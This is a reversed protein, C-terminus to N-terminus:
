YNYTRASNPASPPPLANTTTATATVDAPADPNALTEVGNWSLRTFAQCQALFYFSYGLNAVYIETYKAPFLTLQALRYVIAFCELVKDLNLIAQIFL